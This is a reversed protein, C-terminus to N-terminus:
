CAVLLRQMLLVLCQQLCAFLSLSRCAARWVSQQGVLPQASFNLWTRHWLYEETCCLRVATICTGPQVVCCRLATVLLLATLLSLAHQTWICRSNASVNTAACQIGMAAHCDGCVGSFSWTPTCVLRVYSAVLAQRSSSALARKSARCACAICSAWWCGRPPTKAVCLKTGPLSTQLAAVIAAM